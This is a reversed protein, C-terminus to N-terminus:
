GGPHRGKQTPDRLVQVAARGQGEVMRVQLPYEGKHEPCIPYHLGIVPPRGPLVDQQREDGDPGFLLLDVDTVGPGGTGLVRFCYGPRLMLTADIRQGERLQVGHPEGVPVTGKLAAKRRTELTSRLHKDGDDLPSLPSDPAFAAAPRGAPPEGAPDRSGCPGCLLVLVMLTQAWQM